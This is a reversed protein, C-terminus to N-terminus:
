CLNPFRQCATQSGGGGPATSPAAPQQNPRPQNPPPQNPPPQVNGGGAVAPPQAPRPAPAANAGPPTDPGRLNITHDTKGNVDIKLFKESRLGAKSCEEQTDKGYAAQFLTFKKSEICFPTEGNYKVVTQGPERGWAHFYYYRNSLQAKIAEKCEGGELVWWGEGVWGKERDIYGVAVNFKFNAENCFRLGAEARQAGTSIAVLLVM